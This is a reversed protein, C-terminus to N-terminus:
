FLFTGSRPPLSKELVQDSPEVIAWSGSPQLRMTAFHILRGGGIVEGAQVPGLRPHGIGCYRFLYAPIEPTSFYICNAGQAAPEVTGAFPARLRNNGLKISIDGLSGTVLFGAIRDGSELEWSQTLTIKRPSVAESSRCGTLGLAFSILLMLVGLWKPFLNRPLGCLHWIRLPAVQVLILIIPKLSSKFYYKSSNSNLGSVIARTNMM